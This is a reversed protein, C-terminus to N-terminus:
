LIARLLKDINWLWEASRLSTRINLFSNKQNRREINPSRVEPNEANVHFSPIDVMKGIDASYRSSRGHSPATTFGLQNNVILHITGGINHLM